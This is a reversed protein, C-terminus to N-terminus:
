PCQFSCIQFSNKSDLCAPDIRCDGATKQVPATTPTPSGLFSPPVPFDFQVSDNNGSITIDVPENVSRGNVTLSLTYLGPPLNHFIYRGRSNTIVSDSGLGSLIVQAGAYPVETLDKRRNGNKDVFVNGSISSAPTSPQPTTNNPIPKCIDLAQAPNILPGIPQDTQIITGSNILCSKIRQSTLSPNYALLLAAAGSVQPAAMSTGSRLTYGNNLGTSLICTSIGCPSAGGPASIEVKTGFNSFPSRKRDVTVAGVALAGDCGAPIQTEADVGKGDGNNGNGAATIVLAGKKVAYKLTDNYTGNCSGAGAISVNIIKVGSDVAYQIARSVNSTACDGKKDCAKVALIKAGWSVGSIGINNNTIAGLIGAVHTGHGQDDMPDNNGKIFNKGKLVTGSLDEHNYDVGTDIVAITTKGDTHQINWAAPMGIMSLDWLDKFYPDNPNEQIKLIYDPTANKIQHITTLKPYIERISTGKKLNFVYYNGLLESGSIFLRKQSVVGLDSLEAVLKSSEEEKGSLLLEEPSKGEKYNIIIQDPVYRVGQPFIANQKSFVNQVIVYGLFLAAFVIFPIFFYSTDINRLLKRLRKM